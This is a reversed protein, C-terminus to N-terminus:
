PMCPEEKGMATAWPSPRAENVEEVETGGVSADEKTAWPSAGTCYTSLAVRLGVIFYGKLGLPLGSPIAPTRLASPRTRAIMGCGSRVTMFPMPLQSGARAASHPSMPGHPRMKKLALRQTPQNIEMIEDSMMEKVVQFSFFIQKNTSKNQTENASNLEACM